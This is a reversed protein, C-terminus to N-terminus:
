MSNTSRLRTFDTADGSTAWAGGVGATEGGLDGVTAGFDDFALPSASEGAALEYELRLKVIGTKRRGAAM